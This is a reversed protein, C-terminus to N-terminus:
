SRLRGALASIVADEEDIMAEVSARADALAITGGTETGSQAVRETVELSELSSLALSTAGRASELGALAISARSWADSAVAAGAASAVIAQAGARQGMFRAHAARAEGLVQDLRAQLDASAPLPPPFQSDTEEAAVPEATGSMREAPRSALSPYSSSAACGGLALTAALVAAFAARFDQTRNSM